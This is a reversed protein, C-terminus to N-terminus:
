VGSLQPPGSGSPGKKLGAKADDERKKTNPHNNGAKVIDELFHARNLEFGRVANFIEILSGDDTKELCILWQEEQAKRAEPGEWGCKDLALRRVYYNALIGLILRDSRVTDVDVAIRNRSDDNHGLAYNLRGVNGSLADNRFDCAQEIMGALKSSGEDVKGSMLSNILEAEGESGPVWWKTGIAEIFADREKLRSDGSPHLPGLNELLLQRESMPEATENAQEPQRPFENKPKPM